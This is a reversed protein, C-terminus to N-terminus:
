RTGQWALTPYKEIFTRTIDMDIVHSYVEGSPTTGRIKGDNLFGSVIIKGLSFQDEEIKIESERFPEPTPLAMGNDLLLKIFNIIRSLRLFTISELRSTTHSLPLASSRFLSCPTPLMNLGQLMGYDKSGPAPYFVSLGVLTRRSALFYLDSLTQDPLQHPAGAIIYAVCELGYKEAYGLADEFATLVNPRKWRELQEPCTAGLSLNLTRFGAAKMASVIEDDLSPPFLGNMARLEFTQSNYQTEIRHLLELVWKKNLALNEDEFDIFRIDFQSVASEIEQIVSDVSRRRYPFLSDKGLSCYSCSMPCGRSTVVVTAGQKNRRYFKHNVHHLAPRPMKDLDGIVSPSGIHLAEKQRFVIGPVHIPSEGHKLVRVLEPLSVEGEGRLVFDVADCVMVQRPLATPHHGGLVIFSKPSVSKAIEVVKLAETEYPTFLSSIGIIFADSQKIMREIHEYSYGFHHFKHFLKFPSVDPKGYFEELYTMEKPLPVERSKASSLGDLISVSYGKEECAAAILSLGYPITRKATLYFDRIPPQILLVDLM